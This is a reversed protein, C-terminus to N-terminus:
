RGRYKWNPEYSGSNEVKIRPHLSSSGLYDTLAQSQIRTEEGIERYEEQDDLYEDKPKKMLIQGGQRIYNDENGRKLHSPLDHIKIEPHDSLLVFEWGDALMRYINDPDDQNLMRERAWSYQLGAPTNANDWDLQGKQKRRAKGGPRIDQARNRSAQLGRVNGPAPDGWAHLVTGEPFADVDPENIEAKQRAM